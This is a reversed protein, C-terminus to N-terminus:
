DPLRCGVQATKQATKKHSEGELLYVLTDGVAVATTVEMQHETRLQHLVEACNANPQSLFAFGVVSLIVIIM